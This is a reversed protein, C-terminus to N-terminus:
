INVTHIHGQIGEYILPLTTQTLTNIYQLGDEGGDLAIVPEYQLAITEVSAPRTLEASPVYPPNSVVLDIDKGQLPDLLNGELFTMSSEVHHMAANEKAVTLATPSIDTATVHSVYEPAELLLTIAIVGSGTAIDAIHLPREKQKSLATIIPIATEILDETSPRPVLVQDTVSFTRGYFDWQGLVYALPIGTARKTILKSINEQLDQPVPDSGHGALPLFSSPLTHSLIFDAELAPADSVQKLSDIIASRASSVTHM